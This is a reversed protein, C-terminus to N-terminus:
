LEKYANEQQIFANIIINMLLSCWLLVCHCICDERISSVTVTRIPLVTALIFILIVGVFWNTATWHGRGLAWEVKELDGRQGGADPIFAGIRAEEFRERWFGREKYLAFVLHMQTVDMDWQPPFLPLLISAWEESFGVELVRWASRWTVRGVACYFCMASTRIM